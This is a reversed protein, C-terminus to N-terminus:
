GADVDRRARKEPAGDGDAAAARRAKARWQRLIEHGTMGLAVGVNMSNKVGLAPLRVVADCKKLLGADLGHRENGLLLACEAPWEYEDVM